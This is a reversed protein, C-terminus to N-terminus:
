LKKTPISHVIQTIRGGLWVETYIRLLFENVMNSNSYAFLLLYLSRFLHHKQFNWIICGRTQVSHKQLLREMRVKVSRRGRGAKTNLPPPSIIISDKAQNVAAEPKSGNEHKVGNQAIEPTM